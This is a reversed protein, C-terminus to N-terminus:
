KQGRVLKEVEGHRKWSYVLTDIILIDGASVKIYSWAMDTEGLEVEGERRWKKGEQKQNVAM